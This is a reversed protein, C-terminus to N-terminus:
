GIQETWTARYTGEREYKYGYYLATLVLNTLAFGISLMRRLQPHEDPQWYLRDLARRPQQNPFKVRSTQKPWENM